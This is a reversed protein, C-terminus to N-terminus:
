RTNEIKNIKGNENLVLFSPGEKITNLDHIIKEWKSIFLSVIKWYDVNSKNFFLVITKNEILLQKETKIKRMKKDKTILIANEKKLLPILEPDQIGKYENKVSKITNKNDLINLAEALQKPINEDFYIIM